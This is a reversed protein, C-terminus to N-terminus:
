PRHAMRSITGAHSRENGVVSEAVRRTGAAVEDANVVVVPTPGGGAAGAEGLSDLSMPRMSSMETKGQAYASLWRVSPDVQSLPRNLPVVAEPGAEGILRVAASNFVGGVATGPASSSGSASYRTNRTTPVDLVADRAKKADSLFGSLGSSSYATSHKKPIKGIGATLKGTDKIPTALSPFSIKPAASKPLGKINAGLQKSDKVPKDLKTTTVKVDKRPPVTGLKKALEDAKVAGADLKTAVGELAKAGDRAWQFKDSKIMGLAGLTKAIATVVFGAFRMIDAGAAVAGAALARLINRFTESHKYAYIFGVAALALGAGILLFPWTAAIVSVALAAFAGVLLGGVIAGVTILVGQNNGLWGFFGILKVNIADITPLLATGISEKFNNFTTKLKEGSTASAAAVGGVQSQVEGLILKQAGLVNGSEVMTKIQEKQQDSFTVGARSLATVGKIPDNLAKGLMKSASDVSGFGAASLDVAAATAQDFVKNGKGAENRVNKFTLLLNAGTQIAEDDVGTKNSISTALKGIGAATVNAVGGTSKIIANTTAGVKQAERAEATADKIFGIVKAGALAGFAGAAAGGMGGKFAGGFRKGANKGAKDAAPGTASTLGSTIAGTSGRFSPVITVFATGVEAM